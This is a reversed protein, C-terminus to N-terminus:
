LGLELIGLVPEGASNVGDQDLRGRIRGGDPFYLCGAFLCQVVQALTHHCRMLLVHTLDFALDPHRMLEPRDGDLATVIRTSDRDLYLFEAVAVIVINMNAWQMPM